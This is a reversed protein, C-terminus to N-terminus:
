PSLLPFGVALLGFRSSPIYDDNRYAVHLHKSRTIVQLINSCYSRLFCLSSRPELNIDVTTAENSLDMKWLEDVEVEM